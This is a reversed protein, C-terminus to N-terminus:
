AVSTALYSATQILAGEEWFNGMLQFGAPLSRVTGSPFSLAPIGVLNASVAYIDSLYMSLPDHVKEGALFAPYPSMPAAIVDVDKFAETFDKRLLTRVRAAHAYYDDYYGKSLAYTGLMIRRKVEAGLGDHRVMSYLQELSEIESEVEVGGYRIGDYRSLNASVESSMIIYYVALSLPAHPLTIEKCVVNPLNKFGSITKQIHAEMDADSFASFFEKPLGITIKKSVPENVFASYEDVPRTSSTADRADFGAITELVYAADLANNAFIGVQDLSSAMAILGNRSVRGYTSKLGWVGCFSAPLRVSGGTDTGLAVPAYGLAVAAASGGSSGGAVRKEDHPNAVPGFASNENSSGMAFEDCNTKGLPIMGAELCHRVATGTYPSFYSSLMKSAATTLSGRVMLVDKIAFPIGTLVSSEGAAIQADAEKALSLADDQLSIFCNYTDNKAAKLLEGTVEVSSFEKRLFGDHLERINLTRIDM